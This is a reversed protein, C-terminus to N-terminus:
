ACVASFESPERLLDTLPVSIADAIKECQPLSPEVKGHLIKFVYPQSTSIRVALDRQSMEKSRLAVALNERFNKLAAM